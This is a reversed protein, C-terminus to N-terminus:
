INNKIALANLFTEGILSVMKHSKHLSNKHFNYRLYQFSDKNYLIPSINDNQMGGNLVNIIQIYIIQAEHHLPSIYIIEFIYLWLLAQFNYINLAFHRVQM